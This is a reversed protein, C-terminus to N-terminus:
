KPNRGKNLAIMSKKLEIGMKGKNVTVIKTNLRKRVGEVKERITNNIEREIKIEIIECICKNIWENERWM